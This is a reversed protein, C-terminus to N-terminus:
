CLPRPLTRRAGIYCRDQQTAEQLWTPVGNFSSSDSVGLIMAFNDRTPKVIASALSQGIHRLARRHYSAASYKRTKPPLCGKTDAAEPKAPGGLIPEFQRMGFMQVAAFATPATIMPPSGADFYSAYNSLDADLREAETMFNQQYTSCLQLCLTARNTPRPAPHAAACCAPLSHSPAADPLHQRSNLRFTRDLARVTSASAPAWNLRDRGIHVDYSQKVLPM